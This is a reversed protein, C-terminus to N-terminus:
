YDGNDRYASSVEDIKSQYFAERPWAAIQRSKDHDRRLACGLTKLDYPFHPWFM